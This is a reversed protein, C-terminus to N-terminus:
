NAVREIRKRDLDARNVNQHVVSADGSVHQGHHHLGSVECVDDVQVQVTLLYVNHGPFSM